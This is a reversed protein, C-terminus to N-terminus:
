KGPSAPVGSSLDTALQTVANILPACLAGQPTAKATANTQGPRDARYVASLFPVRSLAGDCGGLFRCLVVIGGRIALGAASDMFLM